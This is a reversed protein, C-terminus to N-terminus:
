HLGVISMAIEEAKSYMGIGTLGFVLAKITTISLINGGSEILLQAISKDGPPALNAFLMGVFLNMALLIGGELCLALFRKLYNISTSHSGGTIDALALPALGIYIGMKISRSLCRLWLVLKAVLGCATFIILPFILRFMDVIKVIRDKEDLPSDTVSWVLTSRTKVLEIVADGFDLLHDCIGYGHDVIYIAIVLKIMSIFFTEVNFHDEKVLTGLEILWYLAALSLGIPRFAGYLYAAANKISHPMKLLSDGNDASLIDGGALASYGQGDLLAGLNFDMKALFRFFILSLVSIGLLYYVWNRKLDEKIRRLIKKPNYIDELFAYVRRLARYVNEKTLIPRKAIAKSM